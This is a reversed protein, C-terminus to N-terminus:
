FKRGIKGGFFVGDKNDYRVGGGFVDVEWPKEKEIVTQTNSQNIGGTDVKSFPTTIVVQRSNNGTKTPFFFRYISYAGMLLLLIALTIGLYVAYHTFFYKIKDWV